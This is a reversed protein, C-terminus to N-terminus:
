ETVTVTITNSKVAADKTWSVQIAYQGPRSMDIVRSVDQDDSYSEGPKLTRSVPSGTALEPHEYVRKAVAHEAEDRVDFRYNPDAGTMNNVSASFDLEKKSTNTVHVKIWVPSGAKVTSKDASIDITLPQKAAHTGAVAFLASVVVLLLAFPIRM